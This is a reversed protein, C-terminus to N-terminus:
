PTLIHNNTLLLIVIISFILTLATTAALSTKMIFKNYLPHNIGFSQFLSWFGHSIHLALASLGILYLISFLPKSLVEAVIDAILINQNTFHFNVLHLIIFALIILGTYPMTRSGWTRAGANNQVAYNSSRASKNQLFLILGVSIHLLFISSLSLEALTLLLGLSHLHEAYSLFAARGWFLSSNGAAHVLLFCGLLLGTTAMIYKKGLSSSFLQTFRSM